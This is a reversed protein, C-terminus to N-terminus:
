FNTEPNNEFAFNIQLEKEIKQKKIANKGVIRPILYSKIIDNELFFQQNFPINLVSNNLITTDTKYYDSQNFTYLSQFIFKRYLAKKQSEYEKKQQLLQKQM